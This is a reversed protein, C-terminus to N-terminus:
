YGGKHSLTFTLELVGHLLPQGTSHDELVQQYHRNLKCYFHVTGNLARAKSVVQDIISTTTGRKRFDNHYVHITQTVEAMVLSKNMKDTSLQEGIYVLPYGVDPPLYDFVRDTGSVDICITRLATFLEQQPSPM